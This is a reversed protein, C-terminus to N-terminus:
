PAEVGLTKRSDNVNQAIRPLGSTLATRLEDVSRQLTDLLATVQRQQQDRRFRTRCVDSCFRAQRRLRNISTGCFGCLRADSVTRETESRPDHRPLSM